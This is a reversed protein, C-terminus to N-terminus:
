RDHLSSELLTPSKAFLATLIEIKKSSDSYIAATLPSENLTNTTWGLWRLLDDEFNPTSRIANALKTRNFRAYYKYALLPREGSLYELICLAGARAAKWLMPISNSGNNVPADPDNKRALDKRKKGHVSLGLYIRRETGIFEAAPQHLKAAEDAQGADSLAVTINVGLGTRRIYEDLMEARDCSIMKDIIAQDSPLAENAIEYLGLVNTFADFDGEIIAKWLLTTTTVVGDPTIWKSNASLLQSPAVQCQVESPLIAIDM